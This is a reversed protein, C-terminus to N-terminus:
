LLKSIIFYFYNYFIFSFFIYLYSFTHLELFYFFIYYYFSKLYSFLLYFYIEGGPTSCWFNSNEYWGSTWPILVFWYILCNETKLFFFICEEKKLYCNKRTKRLNKKWVIYSTMFFIVIQNFICKSKKM